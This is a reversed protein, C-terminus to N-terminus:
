EPVAGDAIAEIARREAPFDAAIWATEAARLAVGL